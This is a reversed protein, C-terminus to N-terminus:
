PRKVAGRPVAVGAMGVERPKRQLGCLQRGSRLACAKGENMLGQLVARCGVLGAPDNRPAAAVAAVM